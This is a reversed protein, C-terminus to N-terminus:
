KDYSTLTLLGIRAVGIQRVELGINFNGLAPALARTALLKQMVAWSPYIMAAGSDPEDSFFLHCFSFLFNCPLSAQPRQSKVQGRQRPAARL